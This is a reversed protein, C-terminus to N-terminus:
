SLAEGAIVRVSGVRFTPAGVTMALPQGARICSGICTDFSLDSGIREVAALASPGDDFIMMFPLLPADIRGNIIRDADTVRFVARGTRIDTSAAEMRRVYVGDAVDAIVEAPHASGVGLFTCGMRPLVPDRYSARRGHGTSPRLDRSAARRDRLTAVVRRDRFLGIARAATGEDDIHWASRSRRPDDVVVIERSGAEAAQGCGLWSAGAHVADAELAHGILEHVWIGGVGSAFVVQRVGAPIPRPGARAAHRRCVEEVLPAAALEPRTSPGVVVEGV